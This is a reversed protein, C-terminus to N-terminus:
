PTEKDQCAPCVGYFEIYHRSIMYKTQASATSEVEKLCPYNFDAIIGCSKCIIHYHNSKYLEYMSLGKGYPLENVIRLQVFLKVNNYITSLNMSPLKQHIDGITLHGKLSIITQLIEIRQTTIRIGHEKLFPIFEM